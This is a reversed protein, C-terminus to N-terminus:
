SSISQDKTIWPQAFGEKVVQLHAERDSQSSLLGAFLSILGEQPPAIPFRSKDMNWSGRIDNMLFSNSTHTSYIRPSVILQSFPRKKIALWSSASDSHLNRCTSPRTVVLPPPFHPGRLALPNPFM